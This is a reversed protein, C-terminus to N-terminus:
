VDKVPGISRPLGRDQLEQAPDKASKTVRSPHSQNWWQLGTMGSSADAHRVAIGPIGHDAMQPVIVIICEGDVVRVPVAFVDGSKALRNPIQIPIQEVRQKGYAAAFRM